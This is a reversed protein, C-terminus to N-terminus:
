WLSIRVHMTCLACPSLRVQSQTPLSGYTAAEWPSTPSRRWRGGASPRCGCEMSNLTNARLSSPRAQRTQRARPWGRERASVGRLPLLFFLSIERDPRKATLAAPFSTSFPCPQTKCLLGRGIQQISLFFLSNVQFWDSSRATVYHAFFALMLVLATRPLWPQARRHAHVCVHLTIDTQNRITNFPQTWKNKDRLAVDPAVSNPFFFVHFYCFSIVKNCQCHQLQMASM